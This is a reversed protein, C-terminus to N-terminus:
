IMFKYRTHRGWGILGLYIQKMYVFVDSLTKMMVMKFTIVDEEKSIEAGDVVKKDIYTSIPKLYYIGTTENLYKIDDDISLLRDVISPLLHLNNKEYEDECAKITTKILDYKEGDINRLLNNTAIWEPMRRLEEKRTELQKQKNLISIYMNSNFMISFIEDTDINADVHFTEKLATKIEEADPSTESVTATATASGAALRLATRTKRKSEVIKCMETLENKNTRNILRLERMSIDRNRTLIRTEGGGDSPISVDAINTYLPLIYALELIYDNMKFENIFGLKLMFMIKNSNLIHIPHSIHKMLDYEVCYLKQYLDFLKRATDTTSTTMCAFFAYLINNHHVEYNSEMDVVHPATTVKPETTEEIYQSSKKQTDVVKNRSEPSLIRGGLLNPDDVIYGFLKMKHEVMCSDLLICHPLRNDWTKIDQDVFADYYYNLFLLSLHSIKEYREEETESLTSMVTTDHLVMTDMLHAAVNEYMADNEHTKRVFFQVSHIDINDHIRIDDSITSIQYNKIKNVSHMLNYQIIIRQIRAKNFIRMFQNRKALLIDPTSYNMFIKNFNRITEFETKFFIGVGDSPYNNKPGFNNLNLIQIFSRVQNRIRVLQAASLRNRPTKGIFVNEYEIMENFTNDYVFNMKPINVKGKSTLDSFIYTESGDKIPALLEMFETELAILTDESLVEKSDVIAEIRKRLGQINNFLTNLITQNDSTLKIHVSSSSGTKTHIVFENILLSIIDNCINLINNDLSFLRTLDMQIAGGKPKEDAQSRFSSKITQNLKKIRTNLKELRDVIGISFDHIFEHGIINLDIYDMNADNFLIESSM